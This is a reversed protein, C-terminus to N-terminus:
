NDWLGAGGELNVRTSEGWDYQRMYEGRYANIGAPLGHIWDYYDCRIQDGWLAIAGRQKIVLEGCGLAGLTDCLDKQLQKIYSTHKEYGGWLVTVLEDQTVLAGRRDILYAFLEKTKQYRFTVPRGDFFIEFSGFARVFLGGDSRVPHRLNRLEEQVQAAQLPKLLYGSVRLELAQEYFTRYATAFIINIQPRLAKLHKALLTGHCSPMELDLFAVDVPVARAYDLAAEPQDFAQVEADPACQRLLNAEGELILPEDDVVIMRM